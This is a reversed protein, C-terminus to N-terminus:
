DACVGILAAERHPSQPPPSGWFEAAALAGQAMGPTPNHPLETAHAGFIPPPETWREM